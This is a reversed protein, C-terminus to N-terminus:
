PLSPAPPWVGTQSVSLQLPGFGACKRRSVWVRSAALGALQGLRGACCSATASPLALGPVTMATLSSDSPAAQGWAACVGLAALFLILVAAPKLTKRWGLVSLVVACAAANFAGFAVAHALSASGQVPARSQGWLAVNCAFGVWVSTALIMWGPHMAVRTEGASLTSSYGTSRFLKLSM